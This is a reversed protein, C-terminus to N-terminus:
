MLSTRQGRQPSSSDSRPRRSPGGPSSVIV